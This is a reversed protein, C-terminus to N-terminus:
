IPVREGGIFGASRHVSCRCAGIRPVDIQVIGSDLSALTGFVVDGAGLEFCYEGEAKAPKEDPAWHVANVRALKFEFPSVFGAAQWRLIGPRDCDALEGAAFGGDDLTLIAKPRKDDARAAMGGLLVSVVWAWLWRCALGNVAILNRMFAAAQNTLIFTEESAQKDTTRTGRSLRPM